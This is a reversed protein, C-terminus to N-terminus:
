PMATLEGRLDGTVVLAFTQPPQALDIATVAITYLGPPPPEIRVIQVNNKPDGIMGAVNYTAAADSNGVYKKRAPNDVLLLLLNQVSKYGVDTWALCVRLPLRDGVEIQYRFRETGKFTREPKKWTDDFALKLEPSMASPISAAMDVRGFGQHFNPNGKLKATADAGTLHRTGNILTAKLLAASPTPWNARTVYYERALAACGAVFPAAMSTGGMFAYHENNPWAGWFKFLPARSSRAAAIDTGPAVVDPKIQTAETPGRSSFAALCNEDGSVPQSALPDHPYRDAWAEGWTLNSYGGKKRTSRSAGVTLANKATAPSAVSPWDVFGPDANIQAGSIRPVGIGDNGAAIVILMDPNDYVFRDVDRSTPAYRAYGFAGWSNNHIRVGRDYAEQFLRKLDSPLGGLRGKADLISQFFLKAKPAAGRIEGNSQRGDGLACGAVHTGHGEPDSHDGPRGLASIGVIRGAFDPHRDDIGTDAIGILQGEGELDLGPGEQREIRLLECAIRDLPRAPLIEDIAAVEPLKALELVDAGGQALAVRILDGEASIPKRGLGRLWKVVTRLDEARHLRVAHLLVHLPAGPQASGRVARTAASITEDDTYLRITDVFALTACARVGTENLRATYTNNKLREILAIGQAAIAARRPETLPGHLRVVYYQFRTTDISLIKAEPSKDAVSVALAGPREATASRLLAAAAVDGISDRLSSRTTVSGRPLTVSAAIQEIPTVVLGKDILTKINEEDIVGEVYGATWEPEALTAAAVANRAATEEDEHMFFAKVRFKAM